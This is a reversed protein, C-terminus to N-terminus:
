RLFLGPMIGCTSDRRTRDNDFFARELRQGGHKALLIPQEMFYADPAGMLRATDEGVEMRGGVPTLHVSGLQFSVRMDPMPGDLDFVDVGEIDTVERYTHAVTKNAKSWQVKSLMPAQSTFSDILMEDRTGVAAVAFFGSTMKNKLLTM